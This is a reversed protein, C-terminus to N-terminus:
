PEVEFVHVIGTSGDVRVKQGTRLRQCAQSVGAVAPLALERAVIAGHSLVGGTEMVLGRAKLFLPVWAPDTSPCVLIFGDEAAALTPETVVLAAGECVGASVPTGKLESAGSIPVPRGIAQLDDSFLVDPVPLSLALKRRKQRQLIRPRLDAGSLLNPLEEPLLFFIGGRLDFRRDLELLTERIVAYGRLLHHKASERLGLYDRALRFPHQLASRVSSLIGANDWLQSTSDETAAALSKNRTSAAGAAPLREPTEAWRPASLEMEGPGRHGFKALFEGPSIARQGLQAVAQALDCDAEPHVGTMLERALEKAKDAGVHADATTMVSRRSSILGQELQAMAVAALLSPRLAHRAFDVLTRQRWAHFRDVLQQPSYETLDELRAAQAEQVFAPFVERRLRDAETALLRKMRAGNRLMHFMIAPLRLWFKGTMRSRDVAPTPYMATAPNAKIAAFEHGYPFDRFYLLPERSLNVYPQGCILDFFGEDDLKPDPDFGLDRYMQGYGGKGSMFHRVVAWTMPTPHPLVEALNYKAWVTGRPEARAQLVAVEERRVQELELATAATIPRAQLIWFKGRAYAWEVDRPEGFYEEIRRGLAALETLESDVLSPMSRQDLPIEIAGNRTIMLSQEHIEQEVIRSSARDLHFRDPMVRGSVIAEGLGFASEVLMRQGTTDLPDCTFLVGSIESDILQQVVVAMAAQSEDVHQASRYAVARESHLSRWCRVIADALAVEGEVGLITEQQGAFSAAASDEFTASSRVAVPGGGLQRYGEMVRRRLNEDLALEGNSTAIADRYAATTICFGPPVPLGAATLLGLSLGKGGVLDASGQRIDAFHCIQQATM